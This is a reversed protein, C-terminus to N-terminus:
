RHHLQVQLVLPALHFRGLVESKRGVASYNGSPRSPIGSFTTFRQWDLLRLGNLDVITTLM